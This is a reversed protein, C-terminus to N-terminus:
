KRYVRVVLMLQIGAQQDKQRSPIVSEDPTEM